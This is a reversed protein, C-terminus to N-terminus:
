GGSRGATTRTSCAIRPRRSASGTRMRGVKGLEFSATFLNYGVKDAEITIGASRAVQARAWAFVRARVFPLHAAAISVLAMAVVVAAALGVHKLKSTM